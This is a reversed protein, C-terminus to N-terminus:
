GRDGGEHGGKRAAGNQKDLNDPERVRRLLSEIVLRDNEASGSQSEPAQGSSELAQCLDILERIAKLDGGAAKNALQHMSAELKSIRVTRGNTKVTVRERVASNV